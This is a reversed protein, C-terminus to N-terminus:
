TMRDVFCPEEGQEEHDPPVLRAVLAFARLHEVEIQRVGGEDVVPVEHIERRGYM